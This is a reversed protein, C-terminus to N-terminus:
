SLKQLGMVIWTIARSKEFADQNDECSSLEYDRRCVAGPLSYHYYTKLALRGISVLIIWPEARPGTSYTKAAESKDVTKGVM